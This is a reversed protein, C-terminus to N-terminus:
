QDKGPPVLRKLEEFWNTVVHIERVQSSDYEPQLVLFHQGDPAVDYSVGPANFYLGEFLVRPTGAAFEPETSISVVMWRDGSRYFLEKGDASWVPEEGFDDSIQWAKDMAPYPQVYVQYKGDKDSVYSIWRSDPSFAAAWEHSETGIILEPERIGELPLVWIDSGATLHTGSFALLKGDSSLSCPYMGYQSSYLVEPQSSGDAPASVLHMQGEGERHRSFVVRRGDPTWIPYYNNGESTLRAGTGRATNYIYVNRQPGSYVEVALQKGDPSLRFTGYIQAPMPLPEVNGQRDVWAPTCKATDGGPVYVLLGDGSFTFQATGQTSDSMVREIIPVSPGTVQLTRLSFPAAEICGARVYVLHGTPIYRAHRGGKVVTKIARTELSFLMASTPSCLLMHKGGPLLAPYAYSYRPTAGGAPEGRALLHETKGGATPVRSLHRGENEAFYIMGDAGWSGGKPNRADCLIVPEGGLLSVIKLKDKSFFGVSQGDPSFFPTFAGQTGPIPRVELQNMLRLFLQTTDGVDAVYVLSSGDPSLALAPRALGLPSSRALALVQSEPLRIIFRQARVPAQESPSPAASRRLFVSAAILGVILGTLSCAVGLRWLASRPKGAAPGSVTPPVRALSVTESIEIAVDGMDQLRRHPDKQLCRHLLVQINMPVAQPLALWNPERELICALTDSVTEGQFPVKGTLMEYLVCGFSWIDCRKDTPKGRAQEPSMYAPTGMVRGPETITSEQDAAEGAVAKALGFDLVKVKGEATIKINGPKLDRHTVGHEHAAAVAEAIQQAISLIERLDLPRHAIREALTDGEIYELILYGGSEAQEMIDHITAINPHDLSALLKAERKLRSRMHADRMLELPLSKIAVRRGLKTDHALYVVGAGGRGIEREIRFHGIEAGAELRPGPLDGTADQPDEASHGENNKRAGSM